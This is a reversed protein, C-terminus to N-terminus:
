GTQSAIWRTRCPYRGKPLCRAHFGSLEHNGAQSPLLVTLPYAPGCRGSGGAPQPPSPVTLDAQVLGSGTVLLPEKPSSYELADTFM